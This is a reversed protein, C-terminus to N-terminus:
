ASCNSCMITLQLLGPLGGCGVSAADVSAATLAPRILSSVTRHGRGSARPVDLSATPHACTDISLYGAPCASASLNPRTGAPYQGYHPPSRRPPVQGQGGGIAARASCRFGMAVLGAALAATSKDAAPLTRVAQGVQM